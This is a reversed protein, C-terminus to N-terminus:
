FRFYVGAYAGKIKIDSYIDDIDDIKLKEQRYGIEAGLGVGIDYNLYIKTDYFTSNDYTIANATLGVSLNTTPIDLRADAYVMPVAFKFDKKESKVISFTTPDLASIEASGDIYKINIGIDVNVFNDLIEYYFIADIQNLEFSSKEYGNVNIILDGYKINKSVKGEGNNELKSAVIKINPILPVPHEVYAWIYGDTKSDFHLDNQLDIENGDKQIWGSEKHNFGGIGIGLGAFDALASSTLFSLIGLSLIYKKM